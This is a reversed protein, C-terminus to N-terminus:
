QQNDTDSVPKILGEDLKKQIKIKALSDKNKSLRKISDRVLKISDRFKLPNISDKEKILKLSDRRKEAEKVKEEEEKKDIDKLINQLVGLSDKIKSYIENYEEAYYSYYYNSNAFRLSDINYKRYIYTEPHLNNTELITKNKGNASTLLKVDILINVMQDKPILDNPKEPKNYQYCSTAVLIIGICISLRKLIM